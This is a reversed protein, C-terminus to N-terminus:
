RVKVKSKNFSLGYESAHNSMWNEMFNKIYDASNVSEGRAQKKHVNNTAKMEQNRYQASFTRRQELTANNNVLAYVEGNQTVIRMEKLNGKAIGNAVDTSSFTSNNPHNHTAIGGSMKAIDADTGFVHNENGSNFTIVEGQATIIMASESDNQYIKKEFDTIAGNGGGGGIKSSGRGM